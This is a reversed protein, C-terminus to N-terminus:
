LGLQMSSSIHQMLVGFVIEFKFWCSRHLGHTTFISHTITSHTSLPTKIPTHLSSITKQNPHTNPHTNICM